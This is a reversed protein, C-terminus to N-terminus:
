VRRITAIGQEMLGFNRVPSHAAHDAQVDLGALHVYIMTTEISAHGLIEQLQKVGGGNRLYWTAFTHRLAHPGAKKGGVGGREFLRLFVERVGHHTLTRGQKGIWVGDGKGLHLLETAVEDSLPVQRVAGKAEVVLWGDRVSRRRLGAVEKVRLGTDLVTMLMVRDRKATAASILQGVEDHTLVRPLHKSRPFRGLGACPDELGYRQGAWAFFTRLCKRLDKRSELALRPDDFVPLIDPTGCPLEPCHVVLRDLAWQHQRITSDALGRAGCEGLYKTVLDATPYM